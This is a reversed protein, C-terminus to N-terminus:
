TLAQLHEMISPTINKGGSLNTRLAKLSYYPGWPFGWWGLFFTILTYLISKSFTSQNPHIFYIESSYKFTVLIASLAYEFVVFRGGEGVMQIIQAKSLNETNRIKAM